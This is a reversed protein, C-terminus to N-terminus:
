VVSKRDPNPDIFTKAAVKVAFLWGSVLALLSVPLGLLIVLGLDANLEGAAAIPGPTPPVLCHTASLGLGLAIATGALSIGARKSLAKNLPALIVFGSDSFVPISIIYGILSMALPVHKRGIIKLIREALAFAGGSYELFTGIITGAIIVIGIKGLTEGFGENISAVINKLPMGAILGFGIAGLLLALFPHLKMKTSSLIIFLICLVLVIIILM